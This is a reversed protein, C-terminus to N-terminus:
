FEIDLNAKSVLEFPILTQNGNKSTVTLQDGDFGRLIGRFNRSGDILERSQLRVLRGVAREFDRKSKLKRLLGPSSVELTYSGSILDEIDLERGVQDSVRKCDSHNVGQPRDIYIRLVRRGLGGKFEVEVLELGESDVIKSILAITRELDVM